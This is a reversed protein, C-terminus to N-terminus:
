RAEHNMPEYLDFGGISETLRYSAELGSLLAASDGNGYQDRPAHIVLRPRSVTLDRLVGRVDEVGHVGLATNYFRFPNSRQTLFYLEAHNPFVFISDGPSTRGLVREM